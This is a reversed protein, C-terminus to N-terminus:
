EFAPAPLGRYHEVRAKMMRFKQQLEADDRCQTPLNYGLCVYDELLDECLPVALSAPLTEKHGYIDFHEKCVDSERLDVHEM